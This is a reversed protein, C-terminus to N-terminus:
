GRMRQSDGNPQVRTGLTQPVKTKKRMTSCRVSQGRIDKTPVRHYERYQGFHYFAAALLRNCAKAVPEDM